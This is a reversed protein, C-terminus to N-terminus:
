RGALSVSEAECFCNLLTDVDPECGFATSAEEYVGVARQMDELDVAGGVSANSFVTDVPFRAPAM